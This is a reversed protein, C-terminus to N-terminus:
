ERGVEQEAAAVAARIIAAHLQARAYWEERLEIGHVADVVAASPERLAALIREAPLSMLQDREREVVSLKEGLHFVEIHADRLQERLRDIEARLRRIEDAGSPRQVKRPGSTPVGVLAALLALTKENDSV